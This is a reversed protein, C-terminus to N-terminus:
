IYRETNDKTECLRPLDQVKNGRSVPASIYVSSLRHITYKIDYM